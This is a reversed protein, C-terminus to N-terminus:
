GGASASSSDSTESPASAEGQEEEGSGGRYIRILMPVLEVLDDVSFGEDLWADFIDKPVLARVLEAGQSETMEDVGKAQAAVVDLMVKAPLSAPLEWDRGFIRVVVPERQREARAADFDIYRTM